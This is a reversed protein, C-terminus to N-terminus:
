VNLFPLHKDFVFRLCSYSGKEIGLDRVEKSMWQANKLKEIFQIKIDSVIQDGFNKADESFANEIFFKSLIWGLGYDAVRVCTRWREETADADKGQLENNFRKLPKLADDEVKYAYSQVTKWVFYAQLTETDTQKLVRALAKLYGPSGVIVKSPHPADPALVSVVHLLSLQPLLHRIEDFTLPNYYFTVDQADETEPTAEAMKSEFLLIREVLEASQSFFMSSTSPVTSNPSAEELLAELVQGIVRGYRAVIKPDKYYQKSPLGPQRPANVSPVM